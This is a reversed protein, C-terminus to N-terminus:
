EGASAPRKRQYEIEVVKVWKGEEAEYVSTFTRTDPGTLRISERYRVTKEPDQPSPGESELTLTDGSENLTGKYVWLMCGFADIYTGQFREKTLDYGLSMVGTYPTGLMTTSMESIVWSGGLARVSDTGKSLAPPQEPGLYVKFTMDWEGVLQRLWAADRAPPADSKAPEAVSNDPQPPSPAPKAPEKESGAPQALAYGAVLVITIAAMLSASTKM